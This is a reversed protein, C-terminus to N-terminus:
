TFLNMLAIYLSLVALAIPANSFECRDGKILARKACDRYEGVHRSMVVASVAAAAILIVAFAAMAGSTLCYKMWVVSLLNNVLHLILSPWVSELAVDILMFIIGAAFAYPMQFLNAHILAFYLASILVCLRPSYPLLLKMPMYRFLMEELVAPALAHIILMEIFSRDPPETNSFGLATLVLSTLAALIFVATVTPAVTPIFLLARERSLTLFRDPHEAIGREEERELKLGRSCSFGIAFPVLFAATYIVDSLVGSVSGSLMLMLLFVVDILTLVKIAKTM